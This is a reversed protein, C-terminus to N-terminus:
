ITTDLSAIKTEQKEHTILEAAEKPYNQLMKKPLEAAEKLYNQLKM